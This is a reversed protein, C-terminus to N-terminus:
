CSSVKDPLVVCKVREYIGERGSARVPTTLFRQDPPSLRKAEAKGRNPRVLYRNPRVLYRKEKKVEADPACKMVPLIIIFLPCNYNRLM